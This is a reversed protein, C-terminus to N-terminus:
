EKRTTFFVAGEAKAIEGKVGDTLIQGQLEKGTLVEVGYTEMLPIAIEEIWGAEYAWGVLVKM